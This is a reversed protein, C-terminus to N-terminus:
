FKRGPRLPTTSVSILIRGLISFFHSQPKCFISGEAVTSYLLHDGAKSSEVEMKVVKCYHSLLAYEYPRYQLNSNQDKKHYLVEEHQQATVFAAAGMLQVIM